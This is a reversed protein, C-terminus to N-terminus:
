NGYQSSTRDRFSKRVPMTTNSQGALEAQTPVTSYTSQAAASNSPSVSLKGMPSSDGGPLPTSPLVPPLNPLLNPAQPAPMRGPRQEMGARPFAGPAYMPPSNELELDINGLRVIALISGRRCAEAIPDVGPDLRSSVVEDPGTAALDQYQPDPLYIVKVVYNGARVQEFDEQTFSIPVASHALFAATKHNAPVVELTPFYPVGPYLPVDTLKLRYVAGQVFNYKGPVDLTNASFGAKGDPSATFWSVKMGKQDVFRIETRQAMFPGPAGAAGMGLGTGTGLAGVAAVAGPPFGGAGPPLGGGLGGANIGAGHPGMALQGNAQMGSEPGNGWHSAREILPTPKVPGKAPAKGDSATAVGAAGGGNYSANVVVPQGWPGDVGTVATPKCGGCLPSESGGKFAHSMYSDSGSTVCGSAAALLVLASATRKM